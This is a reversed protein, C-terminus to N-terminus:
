RVWEDGVCSEKEKEEEGTEARGLYCGCGNTDAGRVVVTTGEVVVQVM